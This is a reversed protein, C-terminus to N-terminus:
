GALALDSEIAGMGPGGRLSHSPKLVNGDGLIPASATAAPVYAPASM